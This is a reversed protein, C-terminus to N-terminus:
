RVRRVVGSEVDGCASYPGPLLLNQGDNWLLRTVGDVRAADDRRQLDGELTQVFHAYDTNSVFVPRQTSAVLLREAMQRDDLPDPRWGAERLYYIYKWQMTDPSRVYVGSPAGHAQLELLCHRLDRMPAGDLTVERPIEVSTVNRYADFPLAVLLLVAVLAVPIVRFLGAAMLLVTAVILPRSTTSSRFLIDHGNRLTVSGVIPTLAALVIAAAAVAILVRRVPRPIREARRAPWVRELVRAVADRHRQAADMVTMPILGVGLALPPLFPYLYHYLKSTGASIAAVPLVFWVLLLMATESRYRVARYTLLVLGLCVLVFDHAWSFERFMSTLYFYWPHLHAPDLYETFRVFIHKGFIVEWFEEGRVHFQYLFWPLILATATVISALWSRWDGLLRKRWKSSLAAMVVLSAPLFAAAVFKTMFGLVFWLGVAIAHWFRRKEKEAGAWALAHFMGGCYSLLLAAEMNNSRLGHEVILPRHGFLVLVATLGCVIGSARLGIAYVYLFAGIGFLVDWVRYGLENRPLLGAKVSAAVIWFKLPPKELFAGNDNPISKPTLWDGQDLMRDVAFAYIPEDGKFDTAGLDVFVPLGFAVVIAAAGLWAAARRSTV